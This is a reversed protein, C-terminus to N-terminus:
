TGQRAKKIAARANDLAAQQAPTRGKDKDPLGHSTVCYRLIDELAVLLGSASNLQRGATLDYEDADDGTSDSGATLNTLTYHEEWGAGCKHCDVHVTMVLGDFEAGIRDPQVDAASGCYPCALGSAAEFAKLNLMQVGSMEDNTEADHKLLGLTDTKSM